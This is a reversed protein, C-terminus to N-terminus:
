CDPCCVGALQLIQVGQHITSVAGTSGNTISATLEWTNERPAFGWAASNGSSIQTFVCVPASVTGTDANVSFTTASGTYVYSASQSMAIELAEQTNADMGKATQINGVMRFNSTSVNVSSVVMMSLLVLIVLSALLVVAGRSSKTNM